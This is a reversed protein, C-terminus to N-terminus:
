IEDGPLEEIEWIRRAIQVRLNRTRDLQWAAAILGVNVKITKVQIGLVASTQKDLMALAICEAVQYQRRTLGHRKTM